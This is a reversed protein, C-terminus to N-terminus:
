KSVFHKRICFDFCYAVSNQIIKFFSVWPVEIDFDDSKVQVVFIYVREWTAHFKQHGSYEYEVSVESERIYAYMMRIKM